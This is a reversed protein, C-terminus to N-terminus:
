PNNSQRAIILTIHLRYQKRADSILEGPQPQQQAPPPAPPSQGAGAIANHQHM